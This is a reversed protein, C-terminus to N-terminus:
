AAAPIAVGTAVTLYDTVSTGTPAQAAVTIRDTLVGQPGGGVPMCTIVGENLKLTIHEATTGDVRGSDSANVKWLSFTASKAAVGSGATQGFVGLGVVGLEHLPTPKNLMIEFTPSGFAFQGLRPFPDGATPVWQVQIGPVFRWGSVLDVRDTIAVGDIFCPGMAWVTGIQPVTPLAALAISDVLSLPNDDADNWLTDAPLAAHATCSAVAAANQQANIEDLVILGHSMLAKRHIASASYGGDIGSKAVWYSELAPNAPNALDGLPYGVAVSLGLGGGAGTAKLLTELALSQFTLQPANFLTATLRPLLSGALPPTIQVAGLDQANAICGDIISPDGGVLKILHQEYFTQDDYDIAM